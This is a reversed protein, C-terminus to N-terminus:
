INVGQGENLLDQMKPSLERAQAVEPEPLQEVSGGSQAIRHGAMLAELRNGIKAATALDEVEDTVIEVIRVILSQLNLVQNNQDSNGRQPVFKGNLENLYSIAKIDGQKIKDLLARDAEHQNEKLMANARSRIYEGFVPDRLWSQYMTTSVELDQLKKKDSRTDTLDLLSNAVLLQKPTLAKSQWSKPDLHFKSLEIGRELLASQIKDSAMFGRFQKKTFGFEELALQETLLEGTMAYHQHIFTVFELQKETMLDDMTVDWKLELSM